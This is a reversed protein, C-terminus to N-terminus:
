KRELHLVGDFPEGPNAQAFAMAGQYLMALRSAGHKRDLKDWAGQAEDFDHSKFHTVAQLTLDALSRHAPTEEGTMALIEHIEAPTKQGLVTITGLPRTFITDPILDKCRGNILIETGFQKSASELRAALNVSDGIVTYDRLDPPAGCDGVTVVGTAIGIRMNLDPLDAFEPERNLESLRRM